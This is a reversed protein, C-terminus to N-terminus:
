LAQNLRIVTATHDRNAYTEARTNRSLAGPMKLKMDIAYHDSTTWELRIIWNKVYKNMSPSTLTVDIYSLGRTTKFTPGQSIDNQVNM